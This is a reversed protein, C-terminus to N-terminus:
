KTTEEQAEIKTRLDKIAQRQQALDREIADLSEIKEAKSVSPELFYTHRLIEKLGEAVPKYSENLQAFFNIQTPPEAPQGSAPKGTSTDVTSLEAKTKRIMEHSVRCIDGMERLSMDPWKKLAAFVAKRKDKNSRRLANHEANAGLAHRFAADKGGPKITAPIEKRNSLAFAHYRHWGDGIYYAGDETKFLTIPPLEDLSDKLDDVHTHDIGERLQTETEYARILAIKIKTTQSM